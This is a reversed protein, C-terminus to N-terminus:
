KAPGWRKTLPYYIFLPRGVVDKDPVFGWFRSDKSLPSNDGMAFYSNAPVDVVQGFSLLGDAAYGPYTGEKRSNKGFAAAGDIPQGNRFLQGDKAGATSQGGDAAVQAPKRIELKDGPVGVLRKIYYQQIQEGAPDLMENSKINETKFVFGQGVKPPFFNYTLRDVFLLDGTLIDFSLAPEGRKLKLGTPIWYVRQEMARGGINVNMITSEVQGSREVAYLLESWSGYKGQRVILDNLLSEMRFDESSTGAGPVTISATEGGVSVQYQRETTPFVVFTRGPVQTFALTRNPFVPVKLEGEAPANVQYHWAGLTAFRWIKTALGQSQGPPDIEHTKGYYTPWMSNTPIKFPQVFYARLGLIVIAAVVFFEVNEVISSAPYLRGGTTRLVAELAEVATKIQNADARAKLRLKVEGVAALLKKTQAENLLDSRYKFVRDAVELWNEANQRMKKQESHLFSFM